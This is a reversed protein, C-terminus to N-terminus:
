DYKRKQFWLDSLSLSFNIRIFNETINNVNSGRRGFDLGANILTFQTEYVRWRRMPMGAGISIGFTKLGNGDPNAYDTGSFFGFRYNVNSWYSTLNTPDPCFQGGVRVVWNDVLADAQNYFRYKSWATASYEAGFSWLDLLGRNTNVRKIFMFGATYTSPLEITGRINNQQTISDIRFIGGQGDNEFTERFRDQQANLTQGLTYTAGLRISRKYAFKTEPDIRESIEKEYQVGGQFFAGGYSTNNAMNAKYYVVSDNVFQTRTTINKRGFNYGTNLGVSLGNKWKKGIGVFFQNFGGRGEFINNVSDIGALRTRQEVQYNIRSLPRMGFALGLGKKKDIPAGVALYSPTFNTGRFSSAPQERRLSRTDIDLALDYSLLYFNGYTAPNMFNVTQSNNMTIGDAYAASIGGMSRSIAHQGHMFNGLGFRSFPSNEQSQLTTTILLASFLISASRITSSVFQM